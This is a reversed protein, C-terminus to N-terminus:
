NWSFPAAVLARPVFFAGRPEKAFQQIRNTHSRKECPPNDDLLSPTARLGVTDTPPQLMANGADDWYISYDIKAMPFQSRLREFFAAEDLQQGLREDVDDSFREDVKENQENRPCVNAFHDFLWSWFSRTPMASHGDITFSTVAVRGNRSNRIGHMKFDLIRASQHSGQNQM